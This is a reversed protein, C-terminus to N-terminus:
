CTIDMKGVTYEITCLATTCIKCVDAYVELGFADSSLVDSIDMCDDRQMKNKPKTKSAASYSRLLVVWFLRTDALVHSILLKIEDGCCFAVWIKESM